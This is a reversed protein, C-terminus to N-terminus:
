FLGIYVMQAIRLLLSLLLFTIFLMFSAGLVILCLNCVVDLIDDVSM